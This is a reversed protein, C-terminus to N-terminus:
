VKFISNFNFRKNALKSYNKGTVVGKNRVCFSSCYNTYNLGGGYNFNARRPDTITKGKSDALLPGTAYGRKHSWGNVKILMRKGLKPNGASRVRSVPIKFFRAISACSDGKKPKYEVMGHQRFWHFDGGNLASGPAVFLMTKYYGPSCKLEAKVRYVKGPNNAVSREPLGKCSRVGYLNPLNARNGPTSKQPRYTKYSGMAYDLCNNNNIGIKSGWPMNKFVLESGSLPLKNLAEKKKM